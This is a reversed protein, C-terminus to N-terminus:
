GLSGPKSEARGRDRVSRRLERVLAFLGVLHGIGVGIAVFITLESPHPLM